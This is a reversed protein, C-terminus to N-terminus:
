LSSFGSIIDLHHLYLNVGPKSGFPWKQQIIAAYLRIMGSMRKLFSNQDEVGCSDVRYGLIRFHLRLQHAGPWGKIELM